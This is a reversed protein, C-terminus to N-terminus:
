LIAVLNAELREVLHADHKGVLALLYLVTYDPVRFHGARSATM